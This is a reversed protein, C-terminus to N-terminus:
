SSTATATSSRSGRGRPSTPSCRSSRPVPSRMSGGPDTSIVTQYQMASHMRNELFKEWIEKGTLTGGEPVADEVYERSPYEVQADDALATLATLFPLATATTLLANRFSSPRLM